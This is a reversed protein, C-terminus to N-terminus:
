IKKRGNAFGTVQKSKFKFKFRIIVKGFMYNYVTIITTHSLMQKLLAKPM